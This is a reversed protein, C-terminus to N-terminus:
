ARAKAKTLGLAHQFDAPTREQRADDVKELPM